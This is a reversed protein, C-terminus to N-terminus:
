WPKDSCYRSGEAISSQDGTAVYVSFEKVVGSEENDVLLHYYAGLYLDDPGTVNPNMVVEDMTVQVITGCVSTEEKECATMILPLAAIILRKM